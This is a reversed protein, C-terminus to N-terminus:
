PVIMPLGLTFLFPKVKVLVTRYILSLRILMTANETLSCPGRISVHPDELAQSLVLNISRTSLFVRTRTWM